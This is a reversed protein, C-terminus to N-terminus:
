MVGLRLTLREVEVTYGLLTLSVFLHRLVSEGVVALSLQVGLDPTLYAFDVRRLVLTGTSAELRGDLKAVAHVEGHHLVM